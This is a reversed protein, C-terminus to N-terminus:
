AERTEHRREMKAVRNVLELRERREKAIHMRLDHNDRTAREQERELSRFRYRQLFIEDRVAGSRTYLEKLDRDYGEFLTPPLAELCQIHDHLISEYLELQAGVELFPDEDGSMTGALTTVLSAVPSPIMFTDAALVAQQQGELIAKEKKGELGPGKDEVSERQDEEVALERRRLARYGLGLPEGAATDAAPVAQQQGEPIAEEELGLGESKSRDKLELREHREKALQMRLDHNKRQIDYIAHWLAARQADTQGAWAELVLVPRWLAGFTVVVREQDHELSRLRGPDNRSSAHIQFDLILKHFLARIIM